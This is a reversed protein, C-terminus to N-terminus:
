VEQVAMEKIEAFYKKWNGAKLRGGIFRQKPDFVVVEGEELKMVEM